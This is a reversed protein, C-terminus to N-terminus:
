NDDLVKEPFYFGLKNSGPAVSRQSLYRGIERPAINDAVIGKLLILSAPTFRM